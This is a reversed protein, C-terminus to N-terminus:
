GDTTRTRRTRPRNVKLMTAQLQTRLDFVEQKLRRESEEVSELRRKCENFELGRRTDRVQLAEVESQLTEVLTKQGASIGLRRNALYGGGIVVLSVIAPVLAQVLLDNM